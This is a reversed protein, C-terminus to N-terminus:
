DCGKVCEGKKNIYFKKGNNQVYALGKEGKRPDDTFDFIIYDFKLPIVIEGKKNIFGWKGGKQLQVEALGGRFQRAHHYKIPIVIDDKEDIYGQKGNLEVLALGERWGYLITYLNQKLKRAVKKQNALREREGLIKEENALREKEKKPIEGNKDIAFWKNNEKVHAIGKSFVDVSEYKTDIVLKGQPDIFGWRDNLSVGALGENFGSVADYKAPVVLEGEENIFGWKGNLSVRALGESFLSDSYLKKLLESNELRIFKSGEIDLNDAEDFKAKISPNLSLVLMDESVVSQFKQKKDTVLFGSEQKEIFIVNQETQADIWVGSYEQQNFFNCSTLLALCIFTLFVINNNKM